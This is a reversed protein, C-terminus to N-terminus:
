LNFAKEGNYAKFWDSTWLFQKRFIQWRQPYHTNQQQQYLWESNTSASIINHWRLHMSLRKEYFQIIKVFSIMQITAVGKISDIAYLISRSDIELITSINM